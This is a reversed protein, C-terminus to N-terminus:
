ECSAYKSGRYWLPVIRNIAVHVGFVSNFCVRVRVDIGRLIRAEGRLSNTTGTVLSLSLSSYSYAARGPESNRMSMYVRVRCVATLSISIAYVCVCLSSLSSPSSLQRYM